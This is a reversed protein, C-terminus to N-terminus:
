SENFGVEQSLAFFSQSRLLLDHAVNLFIFLYIFCGHNQLKFYEQCFAILIKEKKKYHM